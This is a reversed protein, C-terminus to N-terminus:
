PVLVPLKSILEGLFHSLNQITTDRNVVLRIYDSADAIGMANLCKVGDSGIPYDVVVHSTSFVGPAIHKSLGPINLCVHRAVRRRSSNCLINSGTKLVLLGGDIVKVVVEKSSAKGFGNWSLMIAEDLSKLEPLPLDVPLLSIGDRAWAVGTGSFGGIGNADMSVINAPLESISIEGFSDSVDLHLIATPCVELMLRKMEIVPFVVGTTRNVHRVLVMSVGSALIRRAADMDPSGDFEVPIEVYRETGPNIDTAMVAITGACSQESIAFVDGGTIVCSGDSIDGLAWRFEDIVSERTSDYEFSGPLGYTEDELCLRGVKELVDAVVPYVAVGDNVGLVVQRKRGHEFTPRIQM